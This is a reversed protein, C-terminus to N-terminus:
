ERRLTGIKEVLLASLIGLFCSLVGSAVYNRLPNPYVASEAPTAEEVVELEFIRYLREAEARTLRAVNNAVTAAQLPDPGRVQVQIMNRNPVVQGEIAFDRLEEASIGLARAASQRIEQTSALRAFTAPVSRRELTELSRNIDASSSLGSRPKLVMLNSSEYIRRQRMTLIVTSGLALAIVLIPIWWRKVLARIIRDTDNM